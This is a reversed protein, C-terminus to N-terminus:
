GRGAGSRLGTRWDEDSRRISEVRADMWVADVDHGLQQVTAWCHYSAELFSPNAHLLSAGCRPQGLIFPHPTRCVQKHRLHVGWRNFVTTQWADASLRDDPHKHPRGTRGSKDSPGACMMVGGLLHSQLHLHVLVNPTFVTALILGGKPCSVAVWLPPMESHMGGKRTATQPASVPSGTQDENLLSPTSHPLALQIACPSYSYYYSYPYSDSHIHLM